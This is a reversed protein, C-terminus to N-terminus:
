YIPIVQISKSTSSSKITIRKDTGLVQRSHITYNTLKGNRYESTNSYITKTKTENPKKSVSSVTTSPASRPKNIYKQPPKPVATIVVKPAHGKQPWDNSTSKNDSYRKELQENWDIRALKARISSLQVLAIAGVAHLCIVIVLAVKFSISKKM